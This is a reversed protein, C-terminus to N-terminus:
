GKRKGYLEKMMAQCNGSLQTFADHMCSRFEKLNEGPDGCGQKTLEEFCARSRAVEQPDPHSQESEVYEISAHASTLFIMFLAIFIGKM